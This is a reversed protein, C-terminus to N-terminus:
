CGGRGSTKVSGGTRPADIRSTTTHPAEGHPSWERPLTGPRIVTEQQGESPDTREVGM